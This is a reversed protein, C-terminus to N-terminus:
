VHAAETEPKAAEDPESKAGVTLVEVEEAGNEKLWTSKADGDAADAVPLVIAFTDDTIRDNILRTDLDPLLRCMHLAIGMNALAGLLLGTELIVVVFTLWAFYPKGGVNLPWDQVQTFYAMHLGIAFGVLIVTMVPRGILSRPIGLKNELGHVPYPTFAQPKHGAATAAGCADSFTQQDRYYGAIITDGM